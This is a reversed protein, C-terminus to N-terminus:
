TDADHATAVLASCSAVRAVSSATSGLTLTKLETHGRTGLVVLQTDKSDLMEHIAPTPPGDTIRVDVGASLPQLEEAAARCSAPVDTRRDEVGVVTVSVEALWPLYAL